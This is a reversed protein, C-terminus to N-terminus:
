KAKDVMFNFSATNRTCKTLLYNFAISIRPEDDDTTFQYVGHPLWSPFLLLKGVTPRFWLVEDSIMSDKKFNPFWAKSGPNPNEFYINGPDAGVPNKVYIVGSLFSNPHVHPPHMSGSHHTNSWMTTMELDSPDIGLVEDIFGDVYPSIIKLLDDFPGGRLHLNDQTCSGLDGHRTNTEDPDAIIKLIEKSLSECLALPVVGEHHGIPTSFAPILPM